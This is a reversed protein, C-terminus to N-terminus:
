ETPPTLGLQQEVSLTGQAAYYVGKTTCIAQLGRCLEAQHTIGHVLGATPHAFKSLTRHFPAFREGIDVSDAKSADAVGLFKADVDELGLERAAVNKLLQEATASTHNEIGLVNCSEQHLKVLGKLDRLADEQQFRWANERSVGCYKLWVWLELLNRALWASAPLRDKGFTELLQECNREVSQLLDVTVALRWPEFRQRNESLTRYVVNLKAPIREELMQRSAVTEKDIDYEDPDMIRM